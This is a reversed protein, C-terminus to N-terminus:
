MCGPALLNEQCAAPIRFICYSGESLRAKEARLRNLRELARRREAKLRRIERETYPRETADRAKAVEFPGLEIRMAIAETPPALELSPDENRSAERSWSMVVVSVIVALVSSVTPMPSTVVTRLMAIM